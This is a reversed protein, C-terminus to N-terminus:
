HIFSNQGLSNFSGYSSPQQSQQTSQLLSLLSLQPQQVVSPPISQQPSQPQVIPSNDKLGVLQSLLGGNNDIIGTPQSNPSSPIGVVTNNGGYGGVSDRRMREHRVAEFKRLQQRRKNLVVQTYSNFSLCAVDMAKKTVKTTITRTSASMQVVDAAAADIVRCITEGSVEDIVESEDGYHPIAAIKVFGIRVVKDWSQPIGSPEVGTVNDRNILGSYVVGYGFLCANLKCEQDTKVEYGSSIIVCLKGSRLVVSELSEPINIIGHKITYYVQARDQLRIILYAVDKPDRKPRKTVHKPPPRDNMRRRNESISGLLNQLQDM